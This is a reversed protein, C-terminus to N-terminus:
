LDTERRDQEERRIQEARHAQEANDAPNVTGAPEASAADATPDATHLSSPQPGNAPRQPPQVEAYRSLHEILVALETAAKPLNVEAHLALEAVPGALRQCAQEVAVAARQARSQKERCQQLRLQAKNVRQQAETTPYSTGSGSTQLRALNNLADNFASEAKATQQRWYAPWSTDFQEEIRRATFRIQQLSENWDTSLTILTERLRRLSDISRVNSSSM